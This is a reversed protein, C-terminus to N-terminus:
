ISVTKINLINKRACQFAEAGLYSELHCLTVVAVDQAGPLFGVASWAKTIM